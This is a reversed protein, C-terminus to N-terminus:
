RDVTFPEPYDGPKKGDAERLNQGLRRKQNFPVRNAEDAELMSHLKRRMQRVRQQQDKEFLLNNKELPDNKLDYLEDTDWVGHYQIFKYREGRLAFVTPTQPFNYEWYYEYLLVDRWNKVGSGDLLGLFSRGDMQGPTKVGAVNLITPGIDINAVVQNVKTGPEIVGPGWALLPVRMSEEYANRKDILGHEGFLFGNDGMYIVLTNDALDNSELWDLVRAISEDVAALAQCYKRFYERVDLTSHYPFDVGHWSNRQDKVWKPKLHYNAPTDAYTEPYKIEVDSYKTQHRSAPEFGAHVAKHSIYAFFPQKKDIRNLWDLAYDTLEDTIYGKQPVHKGDVNLKTRQNPYYHGQGRFSVWRDFGPRPADSHGGMHWKGFFGTHYGAKQLYESFFVAGPKFAANNDVIGHHHTYQGTNISARSPSCLSTTVFANPLYAGERAMRDMTPTKLWPYKGTFGMADYRHDDSLIFIVNLRPADDLTEYSLQKDEAATASLAAFGLLVFLSLATIRRNM